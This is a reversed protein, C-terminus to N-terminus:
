RMARLIDELSPRVPGDYCAPTDLFAAMRQDQTAKLTASYVAESNPSIGRPRWCWCGSRGGSDARGGTSTLSRKIAYSM